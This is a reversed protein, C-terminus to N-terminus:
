LIKKLLFKKAQKQFSELKQKERSGPFGTIGSTGDKQGSKQKGAAPVKLKSLAQMIAENDVGVGPNGTLVIM